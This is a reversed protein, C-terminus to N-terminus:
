EKNSNLSDYCDNVEFEEFEMEDYVKKEKLKTDNTVYFKEDFKSNLSSWKIMKQGAADESGAGNATKSEDPSNNNKEQDVANASATKETPRRMNQKKLRHHHQQSFTTLVPRKNESEEISDKAEKFQLANKASNSTTEDKVAAAAASPGTGTTKHSKVISLALDVNKNRVVKSKNLAIQQASKQQLKLKQELVEKATAYISERSKTETKKPSEVTNAMTEPAVVGGGVGGGTLISNNVTVVPSDRGAEVEKETNKKPQNLNKQNNAAVQDEGNEKPRGASTTTQRAAAAATTTELREIIQKVCKENSEQDLQPSKTKKGEIADKAENPESAGTGVVGNEPRTSSQQLRHLISRRKEEDRKLHQRLQQNMQQHQQLSNIKGTGVLELRSSCSNSKVLKFRVGTESVPCSSPITSVPELSKARERSIKCVHEGCEGDGDEEEEEKETTQRTLRTGHM